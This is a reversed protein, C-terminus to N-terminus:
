GFFTRMKSRAALSQYIYESFYVITLMLKAKLRLLVKLEKFQGKYLSINSVRPKLPEKGRPLDAPDHHQGNVEM